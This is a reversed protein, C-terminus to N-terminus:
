GVYDDPLFVDGEGMITMLNEWSIKYFGKRYKKRKYKYCEHHSDVIWVGRNDYGNIAVAHETYSGNIPDEKVNEDEKAFKFFMTWNFTIILPKKKNLHKRIYKGFASM